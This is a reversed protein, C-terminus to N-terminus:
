KEQDTTFLAFKNGKLPVAIAMRDQVVRDTQLLRPASPQNDGWQRALIRAEIVDPQSIRLSNPTNRALLAAGTLAVQLPSGYFDSEEPISPLIFESEPSLEGQLVLTQPGDIPIQGRGADIILSYAHQNRVLAVIGIEGLQHLPHTTATAGPFVASSARYFVNGTPQNMTWDLLRDEDPQYGEQLQTVIGPIDEERPIQTERWYEIRTDKGRRFRDVEAAKAVVAAASETSWETVNAASIYVLNTSEEEARLEELEAQSRPSRVRAETSSKMFVAGTEEDALVALGKDVLQAHGTQEAILHIADRIDAKNEADPNLTQYIATFTILKRLITAYQDSKLAGDKATQVFKQITAADQQLFWEVAFYDFPAITLPTKAAEDHYAIATTHNHGKEALSEWYGKQTEPHEFFYNGLREAKVMGADHDEEDKTNRIM